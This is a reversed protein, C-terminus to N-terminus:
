FKLIFLSGRNFVIEKLISYNIIVVKFFTYVLEEINSAKKYLIFYIFKIF